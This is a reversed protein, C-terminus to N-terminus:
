ILKNLLRLAERRNQGTKQRVQRVLKQSASGTASLRAARLTKEPLYQKTMQLQFWLFVFWQM